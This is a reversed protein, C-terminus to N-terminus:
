LSPEYDEFEKRNIFDISFCLSSESLSSYSLLIIYKRFLEGFFYDLCVSKYEETLLPIFAQYYFKTYEQFILNSIFNSFISM